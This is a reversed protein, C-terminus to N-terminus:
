VSSCFSSIKKVTDFNSVEGNSKKTVYNKIIEQAYSKAVDFNETMVEASIVDDRQQQQRANNTKTAASATASAATTHSAAAAQQHREDWNIIEASFLANDNYVYQKLDEPLTELLEDVNPM